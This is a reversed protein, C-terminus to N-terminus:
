DGDQTDQGPLGGISQIADRIESLVALSQQQEQVQKELLLRNAADKADKAEGAGFWSMIAKVAAASAAVGADGGGGGAALAAAEPRRSEFLEKKTKEVAARALRDQEEAMQQAKGIDGGEGNRWAEFEARVKSGLNSVTQSEETRKTQEENKKSFWNDIIATGVQFTTVAMSAITLVAAANGLAGVGGLFGAKKDYGAVGKGGNAGSIMNEIGARFASEMGARAISATIASAIATKPNEIAWTAVDGIIRAFNLISESNQELAPILRSSVADTVKILQNNFREAKAAESEAARRASEDLEEQKIQASKVFGDLQKQVANTGADGGGARNYTTALGSVARAGVVDMFLKNMEPISGNTARLSDKIIEFPDRYQTKTKDTFLDVGQAEFAKIRANKSLTSAFGVVSRSAEAASPAGGTGRAIQALAGMKIINDVRDGSFKSAAAAVRAMQTAQDRIEVGGLKGQGAIVRMIKEVAAGKNPINGLQMDVNGAAAAMDALNTGTAASLKAMWDLAKRSADLDGSIKAYEGIAGLAEESEIGYAGSIGRAQEVLDRHNVRKRNPNGEEANPLFGANSLDIAMKSQDRVRSFLTSINADVGLGRVAQGLGRMAVSTIPADPAIFRTARHSTRRAFREAAVHETRIKREAARTAAKESRSAATEAAKAAREEARERAKATREASRIQERELRQAIKEQARALKEAESLIRRKNRVEGDTTKDSSKQQAKAGAEVSQRIREEAKKARAEVSAFAREVSVDISAGIRIKIPSAV